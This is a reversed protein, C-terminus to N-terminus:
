TWRELFVMLGEWCNIEASLAAFSTSLGMAALHLCGAERLGPSLSLGAPSCVQLHQLADGVGMSRGGDGAGSRGAAWPGMSEAPQEALLVWTASASLPLLASGCPHSISISCCCLVSPLGGCLSKAPSRKCPVFALAFLAQQSLFSSSM